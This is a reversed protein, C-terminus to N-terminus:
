KANQLITTFITYLLTLPQVEPRLRETYFKKSYGGPCKSFLGLTSMFELNGWDRESSDLGTRGNCVWGKVIIYGAGQMGRSTRRPM